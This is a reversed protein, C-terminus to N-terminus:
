RGFLGRLGKRKPKTGAEAGGNRVVVTLKPQEGEPIRVSEHFHDFEEGIPGKAPFQTAEYRLAFFPGNRLWDEFDFGLHRAGAALGDGDLDRNFPRGAETPLETGRTWPMRMDMHCNYYGRSLTGERCAIFWYSGSVTEAGWGVVTTALDRSLAAILDFDASLVLSTDFIFTTDAREGFALGWGSDTADLPLEELRAGAGGPELRSTHVNIAEILRRSPVKAAIVGHHMGM